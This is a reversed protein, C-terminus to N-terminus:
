ALNVVRVEPRLLQGLRHFVRRVFVGARDRRQSAGFDDRRFAFPSPPARARAQTGPEDRQRFVDARVGFLCRVEAVLDFPMAM